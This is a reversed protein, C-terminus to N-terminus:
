HTPIGLWKGLLYAVAIVLLLCAGGRYDALSGEAKKRGRYQRAEDLQLSHVGERLVRIEEAQEAVKAQLDAVKAQLAHVEALEEKTPFRFSAQRSAWYAERALYEETESEWEARCDPYEV